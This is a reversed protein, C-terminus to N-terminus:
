CVCRLMDFDAVFIFRGWNFVRMYVCVYMHFLNTNWASFASTWFCCEDGNNGHIPNVFAGSFCNRKYTHTHTNTNALTLKIHRFGKVDFWVYLGKKHELVHAMCFFILFMEFGKPFQNLSSRLKSMFATQERSSHTHSAILFISHMKLIQVKEIKWIRTNLHLVTGM